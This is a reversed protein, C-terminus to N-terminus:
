KFGINALGNFGSMMWSQFSDQIHNPPEEVLAALEEQLFLRDTQYADVEHLYAM